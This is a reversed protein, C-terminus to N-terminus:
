FEYFFAFFAEWPGRPARWPVEVEFFGVLIEACSSKRVEPVLKRAEPVSKRVEPVSKPAEPVLKSMEPVSNRAGSDCEHGNMRIGAWERSNRGIRALGLAIIRMFKKKFTRRDRSADEIIRRGWGVTESVHVM